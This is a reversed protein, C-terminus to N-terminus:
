EMNLKVEVASIYHDDWYVGDPWNSARVCKDFEKAKDAADEMGAAKVSLKHKVTLTVEYETQDKNDRTTEFFMHDPLEEDVMPKDSEIRQFPWNSTPSLGIVTESKDAGRVFAPEHVVDTVLKMIVDENEINFYDIDDHSVESGIMREKSEADHPGRWVPDIWRYSGKVTDISVEYVEQTLRNFICSGVEEGDINAIDLYQGGPFCKWQFESGGCIRSNCAQLFTELKM